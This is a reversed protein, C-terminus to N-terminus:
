VLKQLKVVEFKELNLDAAMFFESQDDDTYIYIGFYGSETGFDFSCGDYRNCRVEGSIISRHLKKLIIDKQESSLDTSTM